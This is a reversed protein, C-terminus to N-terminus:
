VKSSTANEGNKYLENIDQSCKDTTYGNTMPQGHRQQFLFATPIPPRQKSSPLMRRPLSGSESIGRFAHKYTEANAFDIFESTPRSRPSSVTHRYHRKSVNVVQKYESPYNPVESVHENMLMGHHLRFQQLHQQIEQFNM